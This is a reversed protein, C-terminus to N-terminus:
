ASKTSMTDADRIMSLNLDSDSHTLDSEMIDELIQTNLCAEKIDVNSNAFMPTPGLPPVDILPSPKNEKNDSWSQKKRIPPRMPSTAMDQCSIGNIIHHNKILSTKHLDILKCAKGLIYILNVIKLTVLCTFTFLLLIISALRGDISVCRTLVKIMVVGLPIPIFGMRRAVLDSHDTFAKRHRSQATDYAFSLIYDSYVSLNIENFRTIFAHKTWDILMESIMVYICDLMLEWFSESTWQYEKMTQVVVILLLIFLHFRERVDSCSLQFLNTKDFKKFVSGKLEVFNNSMMIALLAKHSSNIAVNLTTAQCLVLISHLFVYLVAIIFHPLVGFHERRSTKPETATWFLADLIDQGFSSFLRDGVELMNFFIYLKIVSQSKIVHYMMSTDCPLLMMSCTILVAMKLLDCTEAASLRRKKHKDKFKSISNFILSKLAVLARLPLFTYVFLFSDACQCFGYFMFREVELPIKMFTYVKERRDSFEKEDNELSYGRKFEVRIFDWLSASNNSKKTASEVKGM